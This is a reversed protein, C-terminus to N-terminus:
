VHYATDNTEDYFSKHWKKALEDGTLADENNEQPQQTPVGQFQIRHTSKEMGVVKAYALVAFFATIFCFMTSTLSLVMLLENSM